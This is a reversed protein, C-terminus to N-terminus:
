EYGDGGSSVHNLHLDSIANHIVLNVFFCRGCLFVCFTSIECSGPFQSHYQVSGNVSSNISYINLHSQMNHNLQNLM